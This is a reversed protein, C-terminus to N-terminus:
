TRNLNFGTIEYFINAIGQIKDKISNTNNPNHNNSNNKKQIHRSQMNTYM